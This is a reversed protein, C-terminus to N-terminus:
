LVSAQERLAESALSDVVVGKLRPVEDGVLEM